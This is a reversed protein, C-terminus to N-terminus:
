DAGLALGSNSKLQFSALNAGTTWEKSGGTFQRTPRWLLRPAFDEVPQIDPSAYKLNRPNEVLMSGRMRGPGAGFNLPSNSPFVELHNETLRLENASSSGKLLRAPKSPSSLAEVKLPPLEAADKSTRGASSGLNRSALRGLPPSRSRQGSTKADAALQEAISSECLLHSALSFDSLENQTRGLGTRKVPLAPSSHIDRNLLSSSQSNHHDRSLGIHSQSSFGTGLRQGITTAPRASGVQVHQLSPSSQSSSLTAIQPGPSGQRRRQPGPSRHPAPSTQLSRKDYETLRVSDEFFTASAVSLSGPGGFHSVHIRLDLAQSHQGPSPSRRSQPSISRSIYGTGSPRRHLGHHEHQQGAHHVQLVEAANNNRYQGTVLHHHTGPIQSYGQSSSSPRSGGTSPRAVEAVPTGCRKCVSTTIIGSGDGELSDGPHHVLMMNRVPSTSSSSRKYFDRKPMKFDDPPDGTHGMKLWELRRQKEQRRLADEYLRDFCTYDAHGMTGALGAEEFLKNIQDGFGKKEALEMLLKLQEKVQKFMKLLKAHEENLKELEEELSACKNKMKDYKAKMKEAEADRRRLEEEDQDTVKHPQGDALQQQFDKIKANATELEAQLRKNEAKVKQLEESDQGRTPAVVKSSTNKEAAEARKVASALEARLKKLEAELDTVRQQASTLEASSTQPVNLKKQAELQQKLDKIVDELKVKQENSIALQQKLKRIEEQAALDEVPAANKQNGAEKAQQRYSEVSKELDAARKKAQEAALEAERAKSEAAAQAARSSQLAAELEKLRNRLAALEESGVSNQTQFDSLDVASGKANAIAIALKMRVIEKFHERKNQDSFWFDPWWLVKKTQHNLAIELAVRVTAENSHELALWMNKSVDMVRQLDIVNQKWLAEDVVYEDDVSMMAAKITAAADLGSPLSQVKKDIFAM